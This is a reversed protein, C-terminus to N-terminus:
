QLRFNYDDPIFKGKIFSMCKIVNNHWHNPDTAYCFSNPGSNCEPAGLVKRGSGSLLGISNVDKFYKNNLTRGIWYVGTRPSDFDRTGGSDTNGVNGINYPTKLYNGLSSEALGICMMFTPDVNWDLAEEVWMNWDNFDSRAYKQLLSKQREIETSGDLKLVKGNGSIDRFEKGTREKFDAFYKLRYKSPLYEYDLISINLYELPDRREKDRFLQFHLHQGTTMYGAGNTGYEGGSKAIIDGAKVVDYQKVMVESIHGYVSVFGDAHKLAIFAYDPSDPEEIYMVYGDAAAAVSTGEDIPMDVGEHDIGFDKKYGEDNFYASLGKIPALPWEFINQVNAPFPKLKSEAFLLKNLELCTGQLARTEPTNKSLDVFKCGYRGLIEESVQNFKIKEKFEKIRLQKEINIKGEIYKKYLDDKGKSIELMKEKFDKKDSLLKKKIIFDKRLSKLEISSEELEKQEVYLSFIYTKHKDILNKGALSILQKYYIDGLIEDLNGSSLIVAKLNDMEGDTYVLNGKKYLYILYDIIVDTSDEIRKTLLEVQQENSKIKEKISVVESNIKNTEKTLSLIDDELSKVSSELSMIEDLVNQRQIELDDKDKQVKDRINEYIDIKNNSRFLDSVSFDGIDFEGEFILEEEKEKFKSLISAKQDTTFAFVPSIIFLILVFSTIRRKFM